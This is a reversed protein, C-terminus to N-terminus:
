LAWKRLKKLSQKVSEEYREFRQFGGIYWMCVRLLQGERHYWLSLVTKKDKYKKCLIQM